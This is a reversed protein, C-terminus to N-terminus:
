INVQSGYPPPPAKSKGGHRIEAYQTATDSNGLNVREGSSKQFHSVDAYNVEGLDVVDEGKISVDDPGYSIILSLNVTESSVPNSYTCQYEGSDSRQVPSIFVSRNDSSIIISTSPSLPKKDKM